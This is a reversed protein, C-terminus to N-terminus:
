NDEKETLPLVITFVSGENKKSDVTIKGKHADEIIWKTIPLGLGSGKTDRGESERFFRDWIRDLNEESIGVGNDEFTIVIGAPEKKATIHIYGGDKGYRIANSIINEFSREILAEDAWMMLNDEAETTISIHKEAAPEQYYAASAEALLGIDTLQRNLVVRGHDARALILLRDILTRMKKSQGLITELSHEVEEPKDLNALAYESQAMIVATPTRLEHSADDTFRKEALFTQEISDLMSDFVQATRIIEDGEAGEDLGIRLSLDKGEHIKKATSNIEKLPAFARTALYWGGILALLLMLPLAILFIKRMRAIAPAIKDFDASTMGRIWIKGVKKNELLRDYVYFSKNDGKVDRVVDPKFETNDPFGKPALGSLETGDNKCVVVYANNSFYVVDDDISLKGDIIRVDSVARDTTVTLNAKASDRSLKDGTILLVAIALGVIAIMVFAYWLMLKRKISLSKM